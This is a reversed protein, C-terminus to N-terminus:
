ESGECVLLEVDISTLIFMYILHAIPIFHAYLGNM